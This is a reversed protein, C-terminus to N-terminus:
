KYDRFCARNYDFGSPEDCKVGNKLKWTVYFSELKFKEGLQRLDNVVVQIRVIIKIQIPKFIVEPSTRRM